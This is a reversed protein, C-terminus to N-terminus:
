SPHEGRRHTHLLLPSEFQWAEGSNRFPFYIFLLMPLLTLTTIRSFKLKRNHWNRLYVRQTVRSMFPSDFSWSKWELSERAFEGHISTNSKKRIWNFVVDAKLFSGCTRRGREPTKFPQTLREQNAGELLYECAQKEGQCNPRLLHPTTQIRFQFSNSLNM